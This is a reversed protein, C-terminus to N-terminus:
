SHRRLRNRYKFEIRQENFIFGSVSESESVLSGSGCCLKLLGCFDVFEVEYLNTRRCHAAPITAAQEIGDSPLLFYRFIIHTPLNVSKEQCLYRWSQM